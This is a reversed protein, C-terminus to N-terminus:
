EELAAELEEKSMNSRGAIGAEKAQAYLEAKTSAGSESKVQAELEEPEWLAEIRENADERLKPFIEDEEEEVHHKIGAKVMDVAAGFGPESVLEQLKALGDRALQHENEAEQEEEGGVVEKVIPYVFQEEVLMHTTLAKTLEDVTSERQSGPESEALEDLLREVERHEKVLHNLVDM